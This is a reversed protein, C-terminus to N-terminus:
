VHILQNHKANLAPHFASKSNYKPRVAETDVSLDYSASVSLIMKDLIEQTNNTPVTHVFCYPRFNWTSKLRLKAMLECKQKLYKQITICAEKEVRLAYEKLSKSGCLDTSIKSSGM